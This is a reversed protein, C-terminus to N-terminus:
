ENEVKPTKKITIEVNIDSEEDIKEILKDVPQVPVDSSVVTIDVPPKTWVQDSSNNNYVNPPANDITNDGNEPNKIINRRRLIIEALKAPLIGYKEAIKPQVYKSWVFSVIAGSLILSILNFLFTGLGGHHETVWPVNFRDLYERVKGDDAELLAKIRELLASNEAELEAVRKELSVDIPDTVPPLVNPTENPRENNPNVPPFAAGYRVAMAGIGYDGNIIKRKYFELNKSCFLKTRGNEQVAQGDAKRIFYHDHKHQQCNRCINGTSVPFRYFQPIPDATATGELLAYLRSLSVGGGYVIGNDTIRWTVIGSVRTFPEGNIVVKSLIGSGSQGGEPAMNFYIRNPGKRIIRAYWAMSWRGAPNGAGYIRDGVNLFHTKPAIPIIRPKFEKFESKSIELIAADASTGQNYYRWIVKAPMYASKFGDNFFEVKVNSGTKSAVHGNTLIYYKNADEKIVTGSGRTYGARQDFQNKKEVTVRCTAQMVETLTLEKADVTTAFLLM